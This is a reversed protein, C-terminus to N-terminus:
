RAIVHDGSELDINQEMHKGKIVDKYNFNYTKNGRLIKIHKQDAFERFGGAKSIAELVKTTTVLPFEGAHNFEGDMYYKKSRVEQVTVTVDPRNVYTGLKDTLEKTLQVPTVGAASIDGILPMTIKGDPRVLVVKTFDPERWVSIFLVDEPGINYKNPDVAQGVGGQTPVGPPNTIGPSGQAPPRPPPPQQTQAVTVGVAAAVVLCCGAVSCFKM